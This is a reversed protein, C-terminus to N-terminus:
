AKQAGGAFCSLRRKEVGSDINVLDVLKKKRWSALGTIM